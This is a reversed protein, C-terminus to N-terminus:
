PCDQGGGTAFLDILLRAISPPQLTRPLPLRFSSDGENRLRDVGLFRVFSIM